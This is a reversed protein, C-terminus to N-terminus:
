GEPDISGLTSFFLIFLLLLLLLTLYSAFQWFKLFKYILSLWKLLIWFPLVASVTVIANAVVLLITNTFKSNFM